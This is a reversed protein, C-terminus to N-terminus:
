SWDYSTLVASLTQPHETLHGMYTWGCMSYICETSMDTCLKSTALYLRCTLFTCVSWHLHVCVCATLCVSVHGCVCVDLRGGLFLWAQSRTECFRVNVPMQLLMHLPWVSEKVQVYFSLWRMLFYIKHNSERSNFILIQTNKKTPWLLLSLKMKQVQRLWLLHFGREPCLPLERAAARISYYVCDCAANDSCVCRLPKLARWIAVGCFRFIGWTCPFDFVSTGLRCSYVFGQETFVARLTNKGRLLCSWDKGGGRSLGTLLSPYVVEREREGERERERQECEREGVGERGREGYCVSVCEWQALLVHLREGRARGTDYACPRYLLCEGSCMCERVCWYAVHLCQAAGCLWLTSVERTARPQTLSIVLPLLLLVFPCFWISICSILRVLSACLIRSFVKM